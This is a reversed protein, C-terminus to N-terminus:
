ALRGTLYEAPRYGRYPLLRAAQDLEAEATRLLARIHQDPLGGDLAERAATLTILARALPAESRQDTLASIEVALATLAALQAPTGSVFDGIRPKAPGVIPRMSLTVFLLVCAVFIWPLAPRAVRWPDVPQYPLPRDFLGAFRVDTVQKLYAALVQQQTVADRELRNAARSYFTVAAIEAFDAAHPGAYEIWDDYMVVIPTGPFLEALAPGYEPVPEGSRQRPLAVYLARGDPFAPSDGPAADLTAGGARHFGGSRLDAAVVATEAATPERWRFRDVTQPTPQDRLRAVLLLLGNTVDGSSFQDRWDVLHTGGVTYDGGSLYTGIIRLDADEVQKLREESAKDVGPPAVLIRLGSDGIAADVAATDWQAIAGPLRVVPSARILRTMEAVPPVTATASGLTAAATDDGPSGAYSVDVGVRQSALFLIMSFAAVALAIWRLAQNIM